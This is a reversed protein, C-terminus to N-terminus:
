SKRAPAGTQSEATFFPSNQFRLAAGSRTTRSGADVTCSAGHKVCKQGIIAVFQYRSAPDFDRLPWRAASGHQLEFVTNRQEEFLQYFRQSDLL